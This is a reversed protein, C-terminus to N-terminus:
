IRCRYNNALHRAAAMVVQTSRRPGVALQLMEGGPAVLSYGLYIMTKLSHQRTSLLVGSLKCHLLLKM